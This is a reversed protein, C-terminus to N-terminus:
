TGGVSKLRGAPLRLFNRLIEAGRETRISEPHFQLGYVPLERHALAMIDGEDDEATVQLCSPLTRREVVLSHYRMTEIEPSLGAFLPCGTNLRIRSTKGHLLRPAHVVWDGLIEMSGDFGIYGVAGGYVGRRASELEDSIGMARVKPAGSLTGVPLLRRLAACVGYEPRVRSTILTTLHMIQSYRAEQAYDKVYVSSFRSIRGLDVLM